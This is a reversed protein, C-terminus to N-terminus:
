QILAMFWCVVNSVECISLFLDTFYTFIILGELIESSKKTITAALFTPNQWWAVFDIKGTM